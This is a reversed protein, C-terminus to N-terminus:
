FKWTGGLPQLPWSNNAGSKNQWFLASNTREQTSNVLLTIESTKACIKSLPLACGSKSQYSAMDDGVAVDDFSADSGTQRLCAGSFQVPAAAERLQSQMRHDMQHSGYRSLCPLGTTQEVKTPISRMSRKNRRFLRKQSLGSRPPHIQSSRSNHIFFRCTLPPAPTLACVGWGGAGNM